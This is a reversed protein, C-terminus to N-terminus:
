DDGHVVDQIVNQIWPGDGRDALGNDRLLKTLTMDSLPGNLGPFVLGSGDMLDAAEKLVAVAQISIPVRHERGSKMMDGPITWTRGQLDMDEWRAKRAEGSRSATLILWRFCLKM